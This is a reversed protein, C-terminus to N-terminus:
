QIQGVAAPTVTPGLREVQDLVDTLEVLLQNTSDEAELCLSVLGRLELRLVKIQSRIEAARERANELAGFQENTFM